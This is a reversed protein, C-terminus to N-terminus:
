TLAFELLPLVASRGVQGGEEAESATGLTDKVITEVLGEEFRLGVAEIPKQVIAIFEGQKLFRPVHIPGRSRELWEILAEQQTLRSYFDDRMVLVVTIPFPSHLLEVLQTIFDQRIAEPCISLLEEFQDIVLMLREQETHQSLWVRANETLDLPEDVVGQKTLEDFPQTAPRTIIIGWRDSGPVKGSRLQPILGAQVVSSKGSGSPGLVTLFRPDRRLRNLLGDVVQQRGFFFETDAETFAALGRYPCVESLQLVPCVNRLTETAIAFATEVLRHHRDPETIAAVM